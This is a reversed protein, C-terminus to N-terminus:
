NRRQRSTWAKMHSEVQALAAGHRPDGADHYAKNLPNSPNNIIDEARAKDSMGTNADNGGQVLRDESIGEAVRALFKIVKPNNGIEPDEVELGFTRAARQALGIKKDYDAGFSTRLDQAAAELAQAKAAEQQALIQSGHRFDFDVLEKVAEPSVNHKHLVSLAGNVYGSNWAEDSIGEPKKVGYGEPKEPVNLLERLRANFEGKTKEDANAPLPMLGKKGNLHLSHVFGGLLDDLKGYKKFADSYPKLHEPLRDYASHDL